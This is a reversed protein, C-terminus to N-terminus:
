GPAPPCTGWEGAAAEVEGAVGTRLPTYGEAAEVEATCPRSCDTDAPAAGPLCPRLAQSRRTTRAQRSAEEGAAEGVAAAEEAVAVEVVVVVEAEEEM